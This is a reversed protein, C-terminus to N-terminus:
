KSKEEVPGGAEKWGKFGGDMHCVNEVGMEQLARAALASRWGSACHLVMRKGSAFVEKHYPSAPDVWFELMGRPAHVSGPIRGERQLERIDRIDVIMVSDDGHLALGQEVDITEVVANAEAVLEKVGKIM